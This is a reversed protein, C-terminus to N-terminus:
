RVMEYMMRDPFLAGSLALKTSIEGGDWTLLLLRQDNRFKRERFNTFRVGTVAFCTRACYIDTGQHWHPKKSLFIFNYLCLSSESTCNRFNLSCLYEHLLLLMHSLKSCGYQFQNVDFTGNHNAGLRIVMSPSITFM